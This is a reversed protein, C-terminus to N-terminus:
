SPRRTGSRRSLAISTSAALLSVSVLLGTLNKLFDTAADVNGAFGITPQEAGSAQGLALAPPM